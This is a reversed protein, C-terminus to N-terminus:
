SFFIIANVKLQEKTIGSIKNCVHEPVGSDKVETSGEVVDETVREGFFRMTKLLKEQCHEEIFDRLSGKFAEFPDFSSTEPNDVPRPLIKDIM